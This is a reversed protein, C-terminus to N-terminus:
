NSKWGYKIGEKDLLTNVVKWYDNQFESKILVEGKIKSYPEFTLSRAWSKKDDAIGSLHHVNGGWRYIYFPRVSISKIKAGNEFDIDEGVSKNLYNKKNMFNRTICAQSHFLNSTIVYGDNNVSMIAHQAKIIDCPNSNMLEISKTIRHKLYLDDDDWICCYEGSALDKIYNRKQGLSNFRQPYNIIKINPPCNKLVLNVGEQDNLVILEKNDYDQDIFCKIVEGLQIPRAYTCCLCSVLPNSM